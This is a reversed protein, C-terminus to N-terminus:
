LESSYDLIHYQDGIRFSIHGRQPLCCKHHEQKHDQCDTKVDEQRVLKWECFADYQKDMHGSEEREENREPNHCIM